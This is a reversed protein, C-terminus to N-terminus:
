RVAERVSERRRAVEDASPVLSGEVPVVWASALALVVDFLHQPPINAELEPRRTRIQEIWHPYAAFRQLPTHEPRELNRWIILRLRDPRQSWFDYRQAYSPLDDAEFVVHEAVSELNRVLVADFLGDKDGFHAYILRKNSGAREAIRDVRTGAFGHQAFENHAAGLIRERTALAREKRTPVPTTSM